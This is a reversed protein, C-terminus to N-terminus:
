VRIVGAAINRQLGGVGMGSDGPTFSLVGTFGDHRGFSLYLFQFKALFQLEFVPFPFASEVLRFVIKNYIRDDGFAALFVLESPGRDNACGVQM